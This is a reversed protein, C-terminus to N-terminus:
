AAIKLKKLVKEQTLMYATGNSETVKEGNFNKEGIGISM